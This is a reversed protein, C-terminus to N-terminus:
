EEEAEEVAKVNLKLQNAFGGKNLWTVKQDGKETEDSWVPTIEVRCIVAEDPATMTYDGTLVDSSEIFEDNDDYFFLQYEINADFDIDAYVEKGEVDFGDKTYLTEETEVYKGSDNLGGVVYAVSVKDYGNDEGALNALGATAGVVCVAAIAIAGITKWNKKKMRFKKAM